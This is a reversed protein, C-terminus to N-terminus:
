CRLTKWELEALVAQIAGAVGSFEVTAGGVELSGIRKRAAPSVRMHCDGKQFTAGGADTGEVAIAGLRVLYEKMLWVPVGYYDHVMEGPAVTHTAQPDFYQVVPKSTQQQADPGAATTAATTAATANM